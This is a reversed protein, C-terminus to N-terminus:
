DSVGSWAEHSRAVIRKTVGAPDSGLIDAGSFLDAETPGPGGDVAASFAEISQLTHSLTARVDWGKCPTAAALAELDLRDVLQQLRADADALLMHRDTM